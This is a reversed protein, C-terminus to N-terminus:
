ANSEHAALSPGKPVTPPIKEVIISQTPYAFEVNEANFKNFIALLLAQQRDMYLNYNDSKVMFVVEFDLSSAGFNMLHARDFNLEKDAEVFGKIWGPIQALKTEPTSYTVGIKLVVRRQWMRKFNQVRSELLDKNSFILQEGTLSRVRTTKMGITEVIGTLGGVSIADGVEFPKDLVISLSALLDGLINQAALAVAIGGIGLGAILAGVNVGLNSLGLLIVTALLGLQLFTGMLGVAAISSNDKERRQELFGTRWRDISRMGWLCVQIGGALVAVVHGAKHVSEHVKLLPLLSYVIWVFIVWAKTGTLGAFVIDDWHSETREALKRLRSLVLYFVVRLVATAALAGGLVILWGFIGHEDVFIDM